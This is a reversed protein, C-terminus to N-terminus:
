HLAFVVAILTVLYIIELPLFYVRELRQIWKHFANFPNHTAMQSPSQGKFHGYIWVLDPSFAVSGAALLSYEGKVLLTSLLIILFVADLVIVTWFLWEKTRSKLRSGTFGFHPLMDCIFHSAFAAPLAVLPQKIVSAIAVGALAHNIGTV